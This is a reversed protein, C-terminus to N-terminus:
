THNAHISVIFSKEQMLLHKSFSLPYLRIQVSHFLNFLTKISCFSLGLKSLIFFTVGSKTNNSFHFSFSSLLSFGLDGTWTQRKQLYMNITLYSLLNKQRHQNTHCGSHFWVYLLCALALSLSVDHQQFFIEDQHFVIRWWDMQNIHAVWM